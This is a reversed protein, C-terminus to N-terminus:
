EGQMKKIKKGSVGAKELGSKTAKTRTSEGPKMAKSVRDKLRTAWNGKKEAKGWGEKYMQPYRSKLRREVSVRQKMTPEPM